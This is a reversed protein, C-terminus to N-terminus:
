RREAGSQGRGLRDAQGNTQDEARGAQQSHNHEDGDGGGSNGDDDEDLGDDGLGFGGPSHGDDGEDVCAFGLCFKENNSDNALM